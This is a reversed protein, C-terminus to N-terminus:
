FIIKEVGIANKIRTIKEQKDKENNYLFYMQYKKNETKEVDCDIDINSLLDCFKEAKSQTNFVSWFSQRHNTSTSYPLPSDEKIDSTQPIDQSVIDEDLINDDIVEEVVPNNKEPFDEPKSFNNNSAKATTSIEEQLETEPSNKLLLQEQSFGLKSGIKQLKSLRDAETSYYFLVQFSNTAGKEVFCNIELNKIEECFNEAVRLSNFPHWFLQTASLDSYDEEKETKDPTTAISVQEKDPHNLSGDKTSLIEKISQPESSVSDISKIKTETNQNVLSAIKGQQEISEEDTKLAHNSQDVPEKFFLWLTVVLLAGILTGAIFKM